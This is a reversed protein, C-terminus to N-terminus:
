RLRSRFRMLYNKANSIGRETSLYIVRIESHGGKDDLEEEEQDEEEYVCDTFTDDM